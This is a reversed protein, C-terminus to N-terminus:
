RARSVARVRRTTEGGLVDFVKVLVEHKGPQEYVHTASLALGKRDRWVRSGSRLAGGEHNWDVCWGELWQSWHAVAARVGAPAGKPAAFSELEVTCKAGEVAVRLGLKGGVRAAGGVSQVVFPKAQPMALLRRRTAHVSLPSADCAVWRRGLKEAVVPTTGSGACCDLVLDGPNSSARVVRSVLSENKQTPYGVKEGSFSVIQISDMRDLESANWVDEIPYGAGTPKAGDRRVYDPPYPIYEKHFTAPRGGKAYFLLTDHNRIWGRVRSKFGSVWGIRWVIERQFAGEGFVEDLLVKAYHAAHADLHVYLSGGDALLAHLGTAVEHFWGLWADLGRADEYAPLAVRPTGEPVGPVTALYTFAGGTDFPPDVYVLAAKGALEGQLAPLVREADGRVLRNHWEGEGHVEDTSFGPVRGRRLARGKGRWVLEAM